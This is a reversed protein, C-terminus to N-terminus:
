KITALDWLAIRESGSAVAIVLSGDRSIYLDTATDIGGLQYEIEGNADVVDVYAGIASESAVVARTCGDAVAFVNFRSESKFWTTPESDKLSARALSRHEQAVVMSGAFVPLHYKSSDARFLPKGGTLAVVGLHNGGEDSGKYLIHGHRDSDWVDMTGMEAVVEGSPFKVSTIRRRSNKLLIWGDTRALTAKSFGRPYVLEELKKQKRWDWTTCSKWEAVRLVKGDDSFAVDRADSTPITAVLKLTRDFIKPRGRHNIVLHQGDPAFVVRRVNEETLGSLSMDMTATPAKLVRGFHKDVAARTLAGEPRLSIQFLVRIGDRTETVDLRLTTNDLQRTCSISPRKSEPALASRRKEWDARLEPLDKLWAAVVPEVEERTKVYVIGLAWSEIGGTIHKQGETVAFERSNGDLDRVKLLINGKTEITEQGKETMVAPPAKDIAGLTVTVVIPDAALTSQPCATIVAGVMLGWLVRRLINVVM